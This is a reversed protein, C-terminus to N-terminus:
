VGASGAKGDGGGHGRGQRVCPGVDVAAGVHHSESWVPAKVVRTTVSFCFLLAPTLIKYGVRCWFLNSRLSELM